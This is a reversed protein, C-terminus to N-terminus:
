RWGRRDRRDDDGGLPGDLPRQHRQLVADRLPRDDGRRLGGPRDPRPAPRRRGAFSIPTAEAPQWVVAGLCAAAILYIPDIWGGIPLAEQTTQLTYAIDAVVLASLGALLLSWTRGPRWGTLAVVGVVMAVMAIDGLPYALTTAVQLTTGEASAAVFDFVFAAGLARPASPRRDRRGDM